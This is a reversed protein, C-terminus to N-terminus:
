RVIMKTANSGQRKIVLQGAEPNAIRMGQINYYEVPANSNDIAVEKVASEPLVYDAPLQIYGNAPNDSQPGFVNNDGNEPYVWMSAAPMIIRKTAPDVYMNSDKYEALFEDRTPPYQTGNFQFYSYSMIDIEGLGDLEDIYGSEQWEVIVCDPDTIDIIFPVEEGELNWDGWANKIKLMGHTDKVQYVEVNYPSPAAEEFFNELWPNMFVGDGILDCDEFPDYVLEVGPLGIAFMGKSNVGLGSGEKLSELHLLMNPYEKMTGDNAQAIMTAAYTLAGSEEVKGIGGDGFVELVRDLGHEACWSGLQTLLSSMGEVGDSIEPLIVGLPQYDEPMYWYKKGDIEEINFNLYYTGSADYEVDSFPNEWNEYPNVIRYATPDNENQEIEVDYVQPDIGRFLSSFIGERYKGTGISKWGDARTTMKKTGNISADIKSELEVKDALKVERNAQFEKVAANAGCVCFAMVALTYFKKM